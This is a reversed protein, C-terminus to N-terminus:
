QFTASIFGIALLRDDPSIGLEKPSVADMFNFRLNILQGPIPTTAPIPIRIQNGDFKNLAYQYRKVGDV